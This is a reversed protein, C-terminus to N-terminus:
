SCLLSGTSVSRAIDGIGFDLLNRLVSRRPKFLVSVVAIGINKNETVIPYGVHSIVSLGLAGRPVFVEIKTADAVPGHVKTGKVPRYSSAQQWVRGHPRNQLAAIFILSLINSLGLVLSSLHSPSVPLPTRFAFPLIGHVQVYIFACTLIPVKPAIWAWDSTLLNRYRRSLLM